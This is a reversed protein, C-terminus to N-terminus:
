LVPGGRRRESLLRPGRALLWLWARWITVARRPEGLLARLPQLMGHRVVFMPWVAAKAHLAYVSLLNKTKHFELFSSFPGPAAEFHDVGAARVVEVSLGAKKMRLALELDEFYMFFEERFGGMAVLRARDGFLAAGAAFDVVRAYGWSADEVTERGLSTQRYLGRLSVTCGCSLVTGGRRHFMVPACLGVQEHSEAWSRLAALCGPRAVIDDETLYVWRRSAQKLGLNMGGTFGLNSPPRVMRVKPFEKLVEDVESTRAGPNDVVLIEGPAQEVLARLSERLMAPREYSLVVVSVDESM